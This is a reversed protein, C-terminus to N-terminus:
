VKTETYSCSYTHATLTNTSVCIEALTKKLFLSRPSTNEVFKVNLNIDHGMQYECFNKYPPPPPLGLFHGGCPFFPGWMASLAGM